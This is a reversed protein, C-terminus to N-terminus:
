SGFLIWRDLVIIPHHWGMIFQCRYQPTREQLGDL